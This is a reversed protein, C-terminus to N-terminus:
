GAALLNSFHTHIRITGDHQNGTDQRERRVCAAAGDIALDRRSGIAFDHDGVDRPGDVHAAPVAVLDLDVAMEATSDFTEVHLRVPSAGHDLHDQEAATM